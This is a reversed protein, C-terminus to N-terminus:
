LRSDWESGVFFPFCVRCQSLFQVSEKMTRMSNNKDSEDVRWPLFAVKWGDMKPNGKSTNQQDKNIIMQPSSRWRTKVKGHEPRDLLSLPSLRTCVVIMSSTWREHLIHKATAQLELCCQLAWDQPYIFFCVCVCKHSRVLIPGM